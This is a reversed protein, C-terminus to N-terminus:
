GILTSREPNAENAHSPILWDLVRRLEGKSLGKGGLCESPTVREEVNENRRHGSSM